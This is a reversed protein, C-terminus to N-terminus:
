SATATAAPPEELNDVEADLASAEKDKKGAKDESLSDAM